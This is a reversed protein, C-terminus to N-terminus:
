CRRSKMESRGPQLRMGVPQRLFFATWWPAFSFFVCNVGSQLNIGMQTAPAMRAPFQLECRIVQLRVIYAVPPKGAGIFPRAGVGCPFSAEV